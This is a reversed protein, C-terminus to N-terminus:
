STFVDDKNIDIINRREFEFLLEFGSEFNSELAKRLRNKDKAYFVFAGGGGAGCMKGGLAGNMLALDYIENLESNSSCPALIKQNEWNLAMIEGCRDVNGQELNIAFDLGCKAIADLAKRASEKKDFNNYVQEVISQAMRSHGSYFLLLNNQLTVLNEERIKFPLSQAKTQGFEFCNFGGFVISYPDQRGIAWGLEKNEAEFLEEAIEEPKKSNLYDLGGKEKMTELLKASTSTSLGTGRPYHRMDLGNSGLLVFPRIAINSVYGKKGKILYPIDSWGGAFDIRLPAKYQKM